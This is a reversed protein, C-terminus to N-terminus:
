NLNRTNRMRVCDGLINGINQLVKQVKLNEKLSERSSMFTPYGNFNFQIDAFPENDNLYLICFDRIYRGLKSPEIMITYKKVEKRDLYEIELLGNMDRVYVRDDMSRDASRTLIISM